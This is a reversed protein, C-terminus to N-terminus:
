KGEAYHIECLTRVPLDRRLRGAEGCVECVSESEQEYKEVIENICEYMPHATYGPTLRDVGDELGFYFHLKGLKQKVQHVQFDVPLNREAFASAVETCLSHILEYWGDECACGWKDYLNANDNKRQMFPFEEALKKELSKGM